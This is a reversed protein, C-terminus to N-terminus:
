GGEREREGCLDSTQRACRGAYARCSSIASYWRWPLGGSCAGHSADRGDDRACADDRRASTTTARPHYLCICISDIPNWDISRRPMPNSNSNITRHFWWDIVSPQGSRQALMMAFNLQNIELRQMHFMQLSSWTMRYQREDDELIMERHVWRWSSEVWPWWDGANDATDDYITM